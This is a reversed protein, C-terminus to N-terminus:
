ERIRNFSLKWCKEGEKLPFLPKGTLFEHAVKREKWVLPFHDYLFAPVKAQNWRKKISRLSEEKFGLTYGGELPLCIDMRGVWGEKWSSPSSLPFCGQEIRIKWNGWDFCGEEIRLSKEQRIEDSRSLLFLCKRDVYLCHKGGEFRQNARGLLLAIAAQEIVLRSFVCGRQKSILRLLYKIELLHSPLLSHLDWYSGLYGEISHEAINKLRQDFYDVLEQVEGGIRAFNKNIKKGFHANLWPFITERMRSRLFKAERNSPDEFFDIAQRTMFAQIDEKSVDLLPRLVRLGALRIETRLGGWCSWDAGEALRKFVTEAQDDMHHGTLVAQFSHLATLSSFFAYREKRCAAELNGELLSPHLTKLHFPIQHHATLEKLIHAEKQSEERWGHDVHAVHFSLATQERYALLCYFLCLSDAGGSLALLLPQSPPCFHDLFSAVKSYLTRGKGNEISKLM